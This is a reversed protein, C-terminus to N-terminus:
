AEREGALVLPSGRLFDAIRRLGDVIQGAPASLSFRVCGEGSPGFESGPTLAVWTRDLLQAAFEASTGTGPPQRVLVYFGGRPQYVPTLGCMPLAALLCEQRQRLEDRIQRQIAAANELAAVAGWQAFTNTGVFLYEQMRTLRARLREPVIAYGLRWGTMAFSKSFSGVAVANDTFELITHPRAEDFALGHYVEDAVVLPGLAAFAGLEGADAVAGVPNSPFNILVARTAGTIHADALAATHQFGHGASSAYVPRGRAAEIFSPYAPYGPDPLVVEDGPELAALFLELLAASSGSSVVIRAPDVDVDYTQGYHRSIAERLEPLGTSHSYRTRNARLAAIAAEKVLDPTDLDLEGKELHVIPRGARELRAAEDVIGMCSRGAPRGASCSAQGTM